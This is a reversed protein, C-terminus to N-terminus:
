RQYRYVGFMLFDQPTLVDATIADVLLATFIWIMLKKMCSAIKNMGGFSTVAWIKVPRHSLLLGIGPNSTCTSLIV